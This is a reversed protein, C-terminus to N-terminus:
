KYKERYWARSAAFIEGTLYHKSYEWHVTVNANAKKLKDEIELTEEVKCYSNNKSAGIFVDIGELSPLKSDQVPINPHYLITGKFADPHHFLLSLAMTAGNTLGIAILNNRHFRYKEEAEKIFQYVAKTENLISSDKNVFCYNEKDKLNGRISLVSAEPDLKKLLPILDKETGNSGHLMLLVRGNESTGQIFLHEM